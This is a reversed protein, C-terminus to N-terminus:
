KVRERYDAISVTLAEKLDSLAGPHLQSSPFSAAKEVIGCFYAARAAGVYSAAGKLKHAESALVELDNGLEPLQSSLRAAQEIFLQLVETAFEDSEDIQLLENLQSEDCVPLESGALLSRDSKRSVELVAKLDITNDNVAPPNLGPILPDTQMIIEPLHHAEGAQRPTGMAELFRRKKLPLSVV